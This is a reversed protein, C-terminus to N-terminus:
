IETILKNIRSPIIHDGKLMDILVLALADAYRPASQKITPITQLSISHSNNYYTHIFAPLIKEIDSCSFAPVKKSIVIRDMESEATKYYEDPDFAHSWIFADGNCIKWCYLAPPWVGLDTLEKCLVPAVFPRHLPLNLGALHLLYNM